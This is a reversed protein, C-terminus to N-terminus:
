KYLKHKIIYKEVEPTVLYKVSKNEQVQKRINNASIEIKPSYLLIVKKTKILDNVKKVNKVLREGVIITAMKLIEAWNKWSKFELLSDLGMLFYIKYGKHKKYFHKVTNYAYSIGKQKIEYDSVFFRHNTKIALSLMKIRHKWHVAKQGLKHPSQYCPVFFVKEASLFNQAEQALILHGLHVPDFTGGFLIIKKEKLKQKVM